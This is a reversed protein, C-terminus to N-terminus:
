PRLHMFATLGAAPRRASPRPFTVHSYMVALASEHRVARALEEGVLLESGGGPSDLRPLAALPHARQDPRHRRCHLRPLPVDRPRWAETAPATYLGFLLKVRERDTM